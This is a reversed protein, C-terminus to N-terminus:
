VENIVEYELNTNWVFAFWIVEHIWELKLKKATENLTSGSWVFDDILLIKSYMKINNDNIFITNKANQIRQERTKLTKQPIAINNQYYKIINVFPLNLSKLDNKLFSLLQNKREISWPVMAIADINERKIICKLQLTIQQISQLILDKNQSQKAYFTIEALKWRWFEMRKYQDAYYINDLFIKEFHKWFSEKAQLLWCENQLSQLHNYISKFSKLKAEIDLDREECWKEFWLFWKLINWEPTFKFFIEELLKEDTYNPLFNNKKYDVKNSEIFFVSKYKTYAWTGVKELKNQNILEKLYKHIIVRSKNLKQSIETAWLYENEQFLDLVQQLSQFKYSM